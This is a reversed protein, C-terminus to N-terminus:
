TKPAFAAMKASTNYPQCWRLVSSLTDKHRELLTVTLRPSISPFLEGVPTPTINSCSSGLLCPPTRAEFMLKPLAGALNKSEKGCMM